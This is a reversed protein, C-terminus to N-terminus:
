NLPLLIVFANQNNQHINLRKEVNWLSLEDPLQMTPKSYTWESAKAEGAVNSCCACTAFAFTSITSLSMNILKRRSPRFQGDSEASTQEGQNLPQPHQFVQLGRHASNSSGSVARPIKRADTKQIALSKITQYNTHLMLTM